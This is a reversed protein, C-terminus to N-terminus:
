ACGPEGPVNIVAHFTTAKREQKPLATNRLVEAVGAPSGAAAGPCDPPLGATPVRCASVLAVLVTSAECPKSRMLRTLAAAVTPAWSSATPSRSLPDRFSRA